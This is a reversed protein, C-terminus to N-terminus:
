NAKFFSVLAVHKKWNRVESFPGNNCLAEFVEQGGIFDLVLYFHDEQDFSERLGCIHPHGGHDRLIMLSEMERQFSREDTFRKHIQKVAVSEGTKRDTARFVAGYAGEGLPAKWDVKFKDELSSIDETIEELKQLTNQRRLGPLSPPVMFASECRTTEVLLSPPHWYDWDTDALTDFVKRRGESTEQQEEKDIYSLMTYGAFAAVLTSAPLAAKRANDPSIKLRRLSWMM